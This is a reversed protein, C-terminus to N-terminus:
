GARAARDPMPLPGVRSPKPAYDPRPFDIGLEAINGALGTEFSHNAAIGALIAAAGGREDSARPYPDAPSEPPFIEDLMVDDGGGHGGTGTWPTLVRPASRLPIVRTSVGDVAIAGQVTDPGNVYTSEVVSHEIRGLTGNFVITYGAWANFANLSYTLTAGNDYAVLVSMTDEIDSDDRFVCRDRFYGDHQEHDLYLPKLGPDASLDIFFGCRTTEPCTSCREQPSSLGFRRAMAPTYFARKGTAHVTVPLAGLCWNVLDFHHSSKRLILGGSHHKHAHWRRFCDAGHTTNLMWHFDVSLIDGIEGRMLLDKVQTRPPSYRYNFTVRLSRGTCRKVDLIRQCKEASTTMPKESIVDCGAEMARIIYVDHTADVTTVIVFGPKTEAIMREFDVAAYAPPPPASHGVSRARALEVRGPNVDCLGVLEAHATYTKEIADQYMRSRSGTGVIVYRRRAATPSGPQAPSTKPVSSPTPHLSVSPPLMAPSRVLIRLVSCKPFLPPPCRDARTPADSLLAGDQAQPRHPRRPPKEFHLDRRRPDQLRHQGHRSRRRRDQARDRHGQRRTVGRLHRRRHHLREDRPPRRRPTSSITKAVRDLLASFKKGPLRDDPVVIALAGLTKWGSVAITEKPSDIWKLALTLGEANESAVSPVITNGIMCGGATEVWKQLQAPTLKGGDAIMGALYPADGNGTAYLQRALAQDGKVKKHLVKLDAIKVGFFPEKAGHKIWLLKTAESGKAALASMVQALTVPLPAESLNLPAPSTSPNLQKQAM